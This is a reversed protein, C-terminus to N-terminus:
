ARVAVGYGIYARTREGDLVSALGKVHDQNATHAARKHTLTTSASCEAPRQPELQPRVGEVSLSHRHKVLDGAGISGPLAVARPSGFGPSLPRHTALWGVKSSYPMAVLGVVLRLRRPICFKGLGKLRLVSVTRPRECRSSVRVM